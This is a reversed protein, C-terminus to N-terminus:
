CGAVFYTGNYELLALPHIIYHTSLPSDKIYGSVIFM